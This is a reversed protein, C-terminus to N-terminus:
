KCLPNQSCEGVESWKPCRKEMDVCASKINDKDTDDSITKVLPECSGCSLACNAFMYNPNAQCEGQTAWIPCSPNIDQCPDIFDDPLQLTQIDTCTQDDGDNNCVQQCILSTPLLTFLFFRRKFVMTNYLRRM